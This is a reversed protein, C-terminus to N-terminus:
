SITRRKLRETDAPSWGTLKGGSCVIGGHTACNSRFREKSFLRDNELRGVERRGSQRLSGGADALNPRTRGDRQRRRREGASVGRSRTVSEFDSFGKVATFYTRSIWRSLAWETGARMLPSWGFVDRADIPAGDEIAFKVIELHSNDAAYHLATMGNRSLFMRDIRCKRLARYCVQRQRGVLM